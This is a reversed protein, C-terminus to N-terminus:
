GWRPLNRGLAEVVLEAHREWASMDWPETERAARGIVATVADRLAPATYDAPVVADTPRAQRAIDGVDTMVVPRGVAHARAVVGSSYGSDYLTLVVDALSYAALEERDTMRRDVRAIHLGSAATTSLAAGLDWSGQQTGAVLLTSVPSDASELAERARAIGKGPRLNGIIAAVPRPLKAVGLLLCAPTPDMEVVPRFDGFPAVIVRNPSVGQAVIDARARAGHVVVIDFAGLCRRYATGRQSDMAPIPDHAVLILRRGLRRVALLFWWDLVPRHLFHLVVADARQVLPLSAAYGAIYAAARIPRAKSHDLALGFLRSQHINARSRGAADASATVLDIDAGSREYALILAENYHGMGGRVGLPELYLLRM